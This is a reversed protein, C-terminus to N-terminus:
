PRVVMLRRTSIIKGRSDSLSYLYTGKSLSSINVKETHTGALFYRRSWAKVGLINYITLTYTDAPLGTFEFRVNAIAPNPFAYVNPHSRDAPKLDTLMENVKYEVRAVDTDNPAMNVEAIPTVSEPSLFFYTLSTDQGVGELGVQEILVDTVDVWDFFGIKADVRIDRINTQKKRLVDYIGGPLILSGWADAEETIRRNIRLRISDPTIPLEGLIELPLDDASFPLSLNTESEFSDGFALPAQRETLPPSYPFVATLGLGAPDEGFYGLNRVTGADSQYFTVAGQTEIGYDAAPFAFAGALQNAPQVIATRSFPAELTTFDWSQGPGPQGAEIGSPLNDVATLLTDGIEPFTSNTIVPQAEALLTFFFLFLSCLLTHKM